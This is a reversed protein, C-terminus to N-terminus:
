RVVIRDKIKEFIGGAIGKVEMIEEISDFSNSSRYAIIAQARGQAIGDLCELQSAPATNINIKEPCGSGKEATGAGVSEWSGGGQTGVEPPPAGEAVGAVEGKRPIYLKDGDSLKAALNLSKSVWDRDADDSLGGAQGLADEVRSGEGLERVGPNNVAGSVDVKISIDVDESPAAESIPIETIEEPSEGVEYTVPPPNRVQWAKALLMGSGFLLLGSLLLVLPRFNQEALSSFTAPKDSM